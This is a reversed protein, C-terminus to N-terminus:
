AHISPESHADSIRKHTGLNATLVIGLCGNEKAHGKKLKLRVGRYRIGGVKVVVSSFFIAPMFRRPVM